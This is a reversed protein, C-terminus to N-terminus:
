KFLLLGTFQFRRQSTFHCRRQPHQRLRQDPLPRVDDRGEDIGPGLLLLFTADQINVNLAPKEFEFRCSHWM